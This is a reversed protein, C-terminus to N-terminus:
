VLVYDCKLCKFAAPGSKVFSEMGCKPCVYVPHKTVDEARIFTRETKELTEVLGEEIDDLTTEGWFTEEILDVEELDSNSVFFTNKEDKEVFGTLYKTVKKIGKGVISEPKFKM